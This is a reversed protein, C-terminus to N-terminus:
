FQLSLVAPKRNAMFKYSNPSGVGYQVAFHIEQQKLYDKDVGYVRKYPHCPAVFRCM